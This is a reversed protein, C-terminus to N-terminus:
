LEKMIDDKKREYEVQSILNKDRMEKLEAMRDLTSKKGKETVGAKAFPAPASAARFWWNRAFILLLVFFISSAMLGTIAVTPLTIDKGDCLISHSWYTQGPRPSSKTTIIEYNGDCLFEGSVNNVAPFIATALATFIAYGLFLSVGFLIAIVIWNPRKM